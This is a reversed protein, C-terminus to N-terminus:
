VKKILLQGKALYMARVLYRRVYRGSFFNISKRTPNPLPLSPSPSLSFFCHIPICPHVLDETRGGATFDQIFHIKFIETM